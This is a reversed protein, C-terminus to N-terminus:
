ILIMLDFKLQLANKRYLVVCLAKISKNDSYFLDPVIAINLIQQFM